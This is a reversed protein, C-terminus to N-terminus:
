LDNMFEEKLKYVGKKGDVSNIASNSARAMNYLKATIQTRKKAEKFKRYYGAQIQDINLECKAIQFLKIMNKEFDDRKNVALEEKLDQPLDSTDSLDFINKETEM